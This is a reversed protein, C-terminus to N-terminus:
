RDARVEGANTDYKRPCDNMPLIMAYLRKDKLYVVPLGNGRPDCDLAHRDGKM